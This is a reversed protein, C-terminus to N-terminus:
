IQTEDKNVQRRNITKLMNQCRKLNDDQRSFEDVNYLKITKQLQSKSETNKNNFYAKCLYFNLQKYNMIFENTQDYDFLDEETTIKLVDLIYKCAKKCIQIFHSQTNIQDCNALYGILLCVEVITNDGYYNGIMLKDMMNDKTEYFWDIFLNITDYIKDKYELTKGQDNHIFDSLGRYSNRAIYIKIYPDDPYIVQLKKLCENSAWYDKFASLALANQMLIMKEYQRNSYQQFKEIENTLKRENIKNIIFPLLVPVLVGFVALLASLILTWTSFLSQYIEISEQNKKNEELLFEIKEDREDISVSANTKDLKEAIESEETISTAQSDTISDSEAYANIPFILSLCIAVTGFLCCFKPKNM